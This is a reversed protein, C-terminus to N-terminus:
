TIKGVIFFTVGDVREIRTLEEEGGFTCGFINRKEGKKKTESVFVHAFHHRLRTHTHSTVSM